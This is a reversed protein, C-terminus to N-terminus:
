LPWTRVGKKDENGKAIQVLFSSGALLNWSLKWSCRNLSKISAVHDNHNLKYRDNYYSQINNTSRDIGAEQFIM